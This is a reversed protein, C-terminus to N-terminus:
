TRKGRQVPIRGRVLTGEGPRSTVEVSGGLAEVRDRMNTLGSGPPTRAPDFGKGDDSVEFVLSGNETGLRVQV